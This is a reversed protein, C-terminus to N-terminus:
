GQQMVLQSALSFLERKKYDTREWLGLSLRILDSRLFEM